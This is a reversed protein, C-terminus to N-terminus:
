QINEGDCTFQLLRISHNDGMWGFRTVLYMNTWFSLLAWQESSKSSQLRRTLIRHPTPLVGVLSLTELRRVVEELHQHYVVHDSAGSFSSSQSSNLPSTTPAGRDPGDLEVLPLASTIAADLVDVLLPMSHPVDLVKSKTVLFTEGVRRIINRHDVLAVLLRKSGMEHYQLMSAIAECTNLMVLQASTASTLQATVVHKSAGTASTFTLPHQPPGSHPAAAHGGGTTHSTHRLCRHAARSFSATLRVSPVQGLKTIYPAINAIVVSCSVHFTAMAASGKCELLLCMGTVLFDNLTSGVPLRPFQFPVHVPFTENCLLCFGRTESLRTFIFLAVQTHDVHHPNSRVDLAYEMIPVLYQLALPNTTFQMNLNLSLELLKWLLMMFEDQSSFRRQSDPLITLAAYSRLSVIDRLRDVVYKAEMITLDHVTKRVSHIFSFEPPFSSQVSSPGGTSHSPSQHTYNPDRHSSRSLESAGEPPSITGPSSAGGPGRLPISRQDDARFSVEDGVVTAPAVPDAITAAQQKGTSNLPIGTYCLTACLVRAGLVITQEEDGVFHSTYPLIGFPVYSLMVNLISMALTPMLPIYTISILPEMFMTDPTGLRHYLPSSLVSLLTQLLASRVTHVESPIAARPAAVAKFPDEDGLGPAWLLDMFVEPHLLSCRPTPPLVLSLPLTLGRIFCCEVLSWVLFTSLTIPRETPTPHQMPLPPFTEDPHEDDCTKGELFFLRTFHHTAITRLAEPPSAPPDEHCHEACGAADSVSETSEATLASPISPQEQDNIPPSANFVETSFTTPTSVRHPDLGEPALSTDAAGQKGITSPQHVATAVRSAKTVSTTGAELAVPMLRQLLLLASCFRRIVDRGMPASAPKGDPIDLTQKRAVMTAVEHMCRHLVLAFNRTHYHRIERLAELTLMQELEVDVMSYNFLSDITEVAPPTEDNRLSQFIASVDTFLCTNGMSLVSSFFCSTCYLRHHRYQSLSM